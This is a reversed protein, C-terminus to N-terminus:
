PMEVRYPTGSVAVGCVGRAGTNSWMVARLLAETITSLLSLADPTNLPFYICAAINKTAPTTKTKLSDKVPNVIPESGGHRVAAGCVLDRLELVQGAPNFVYREEALGLRFEFHECGALDLDWLSIPVLERLSIWNNADVLANIRPFHGELAAKLLYENAPKARGTPKYSGNRLMERCAIRRAELAPSLAATRERICADLEGSLEAGAEFAAVNSAVVIGLAVDPRAIKHEFHLM